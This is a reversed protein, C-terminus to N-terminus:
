SDSVWIVEPGVQRSSCCTAASDDNMIILCTTLVGYDNHLTLIVILKAPSLVYTKTVESMDVYLCRCKKITM